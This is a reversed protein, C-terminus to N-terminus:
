FYKESTQFYHYSIEGTTPCFLTSKVERFGGFTTTATPSTVDTANAATTNAPPRPYKTTHLPGRKGHRASRGGRTRARRTAEAKARLEALSANEPM